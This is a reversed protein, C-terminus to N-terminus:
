YSDVLSFAYCMRLFQSISLHHLGSSNRVLSSTIEQDGYRGYNLSIRELGHVIRATSELANTALSANQLRTDKTPSITLEASYM